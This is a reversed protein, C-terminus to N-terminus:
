YRLQVTSGRAENMQQTATADLEALAITHRIGEPTVYRLQAGSVSYASAFLIRGDRRIFVFEGVDRVPAPAPPATSASPRDPPENGEDERPQVASAPAPQQIVIIQPQAPQQSPNYDLGLSNNLYPYYPYGAFVIPAFSGQGHHGGRRFGAPQNVRLGGSIAALHPYDFGLGPVGNAIGSTVSNAYPGFGPNGRVRGLGTSLTRVVAAPTAQRIGTVPAPASVGINGAALGAQPISAAAGRVQAFATSCALISGM